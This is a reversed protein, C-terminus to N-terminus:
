RYTRIVRVLSLWFALTPQPYGARNGNSAKARKAGQNEADYQTPAIPARGREDAIDPAQVIHSLSANGAECGRNTEVQLPARDAILPPLSRKGGIRM